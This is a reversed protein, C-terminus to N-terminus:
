FLVYKASGVYTLAQKLTDIMVGTSKRTAHTRKRYGVTKKDLNEMQECYRNKLDDSILHTFSLLCFTNGDSWGLTLLRFRKKYKGSTCIVRTLLEVEKSRGRKNLSDDVIFVNVRDYSTLTKIKENIVTSTLILFFKHWNYRVSNLLRYVVNKCFDPKDESDLAFFLSKDTFILRFLYKFV